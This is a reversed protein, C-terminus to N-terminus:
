HIWTRCWGTEVSAAKKDQNRKLQNVAPHYCNHSRTNPPPNHLNKSQYHGHAMSSHTHTESPLHISESLVIPEYTPPDLGPLPVLSLSAIAQSRTWSTFLKTSTPLSSNNIIFNTKTTHTPKRTQLTYRTNLPGQLLLLSNTSNFEVYTSCTNTISANSSLMHIARFDIYRSLASSLAHLYSNLESIFIHVTTQKFQTKTQSSYIFQTSFEIFSSMFYPLRNVNVDDSM